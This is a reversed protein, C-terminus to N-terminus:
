SDEGARLISYLRGETYCKLLIVLIQKQAKEVFYINKKSDSGLAVVLKGWQSSLQLPYSHKGQAAPWCLSPVGFQQQLQQETIPQSMWM